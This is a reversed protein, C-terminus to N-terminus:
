RVLEDADRLPSSVCAFIDSRRTGNVRGGSLDVVDFVMFEIKGVDLAGDIMEVAPLLLLTVCSM